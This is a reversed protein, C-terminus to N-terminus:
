WDEQGADRPPYIASGPPRRAPSPAPNSWAATARQGCSCRVAWRSGDAKYIAKVGTDACHECQSV